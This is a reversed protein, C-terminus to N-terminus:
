ISNRLPIVVANCAKEYFEIPGAGGIIAYEYGIEKMEQLCYHLLAFGVGKTRNSMTVGMPGFYGKKRQYVDFTAFGLIDGETGLAIYITPEDLQLGGKITDAWDSSFNQAVFHVLQQYERKEVKRVHPSSINPFTYDRLHTVMYRATTGLTLLMKKDDSTLLRDIEENVLLAKLLHGENLFVQKYRHMYDFATEMVRQLEMSIPVTFIPNEVQQCSSSTNVAARLRNLDVNCRLVIEGFAGTKEQLCGLLLHVPTLVSSNTKELEKEATKMIRIM